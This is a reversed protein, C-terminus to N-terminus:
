LNFNMENDEKREERMSIIYLVIRHAEDQFSFIGDWSQIDAMVKDFVKEEEERTRVQIPVHQSHPLIQFCHNCYNQQRQQEERIEIFAELARLDEDCKNEKVKM